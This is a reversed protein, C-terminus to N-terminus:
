PKEVADIVLVDIPAKHEVLRLGLQEQVAALLSPGAVGPEEKEHVWELQFWFRGKIGTKDIVCRGIGRSLREAFGPLNKNTFVADVGPKFPSRGASSANFAEEEKPGRLKPGGDAVILWYVPLEKTERHSKLKFRDVLLRQLMLRLQEDSAAGSTKAVVNYSETTIWGPGVLQCVELGYASAILLKLNVNLATIGEPKMKLTVQGGATPGVSAFEFAPPATASSSQCLAGYPILGIWVAAAIQPTMSMYQDSTSRGSM